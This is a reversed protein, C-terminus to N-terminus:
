YYFTNQDVLGIVKNPSPAAFHALRRLSGGGAPPPATLEGGLM